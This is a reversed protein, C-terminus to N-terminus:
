ISNWKQVAQSKQEEVITYYRKFASESRHGSISRTVESSIGLMLSLCCFTRRGWHFTLRDQKMYQQEIRRPGIYGVVTIVTDLGAEKAVDKLATNLDDASPCPLAYPGPLHEYKKLIAAAKSSLPVSVNQKTKWERFRLFDGQKAAKYLNSVDIYRMGTYCAILFCDRALDLEETPMATQEMLKLEEFRLFFVEPEFYKCKYGMFKINTNDGNKVSYNLFMKLRKINGGVYNLGLELETLFSEFRGLLNLDIDDFTIGKPAFDKFREKTKRLHYWFGKSVRHKMATQYDEYCSFFDKKVTNKKAEKGRIKELLLTPTIVIDDKLLTLYALRAAEKFDDLKQNIETSGTASKRVGQAKQNWEKLDVNFGTSLTLKKNNFAAVLRLPVDKTKLVGNRDKRREAFFNLKVM